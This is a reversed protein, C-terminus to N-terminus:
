FKHHLVLCMKDQQNLTLIAPDMWGPLPASALFVMDMTCSFCLEEQIKKKNLLM